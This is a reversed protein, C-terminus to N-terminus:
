HAAVTALRNRRFAQRLNLDLVAEYDELRAVLRGDTDLFDIDAVVQMTTDRKVRAVAHV